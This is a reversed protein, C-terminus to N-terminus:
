ILSSDASEGRGRGHRTPEGRPIFGGRGRYSDERHYGRNQYDYGQDVNYNDKYDDRRPRSEIHSKKDDKVEKEKPQSNERSDGKEVSSESYSGSFEDASVDSEEDKDRLRKSVEEVEEHQQRENEEGNWKAISFPRAQDAYSPGGQRPGRNDSKFDMHNDYSRYDRGGRRGRGGRSFGRDVNSGGRMGRGRGRSRAGRVFERGRPANSSRGDYYRENYRNDRQDDRLRKAPPHSRDGRDSRDRDRNEDKPSKEEKKEKTESRDPKNSDILPKPRYTLFFLLLILSTM